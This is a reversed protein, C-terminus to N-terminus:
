VAGEDGPQLAAVCVVPDNPHYGSFKEDRAEHDHRRQQIQNSNNKLDTDILAALLIKLPVDRRQAEIFRHRHYLPSDEGRRSAQSFLQVM